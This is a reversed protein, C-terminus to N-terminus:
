SPTEIRKLMKKIMGKLQTKSKGITKGFTVLKFVLKDMMDVMVVIMDMRNVKVMRNVMAVVTDVMIEVIPMMRKLMDVLCLTVMFFLCFM